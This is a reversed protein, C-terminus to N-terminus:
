HKVETRFFVSNRSLEEFDISIKTNKKSRLSASIEIFCIVVFTYVSRSCFVGLSIRDSYISDGVGRKRDGEVKGGGRGVQIRSSAACVVGRKYYHAGTPNFEPLSFYIYKILMQDSSFFSDRSLDEIFIRNKKSRPYAM